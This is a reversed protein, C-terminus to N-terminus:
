QLDLDFTSRLLDVAPNKERIKEYKEEPTFAYKTDMSESVLVELSISYNNLKKKLYDLVGSQAREVEKKMTDNPLTIELVFGEKLRPLDANLNSAIIKQGEKEIKEVYESWHSRMVEESFADEIVPATESVQDKQALEHAKKAKLSALSLGSVGQKKEIQFNPTQFRDNPEAVGPTAEPETTKSIEPTAEPETVKSIEPTAEPETVKSIEPTAELEPVSATETAIVPKPTEESRKEIPESAMTEKPVTDPDSVVKHDKFQAPPIISVATDVSHNKKEGHSIISALKMLAIEVLLRQNKAHKYDLDCKNAIDIAQLLHPATISQSQSVYRQKTEEAVEMLSITAPYLGLMLDRLHAALGQIFHHGDFGMGVCKNFLLLLSPIDGSILRETAEFYTDYDLINLNESVAQRSLEQGSYSAIRDFISLADRLAGDAKQAILHLAEPDATIGQDAAIVGLHQAIDKVTIRRFDYIQCRSLITPIIKHKETTALIFIAHKPPEELTKLFANFAATSLMHVEDIIYIKYAGKQPPIRVQDVLNRIDDVSNNSAADLEFINFAYDEESSFGLQQENIKKALIRACSTKGVGRPGCFLLAQALHDSEIAKELTSTIAHQGVVQNFHLPRYKRASVLFPEM